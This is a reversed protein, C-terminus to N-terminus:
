LSAAEDLQAVEAAIETPDRDAVPVSAYERVATAIATPIPTDDVWIARTVGADRLGDAWQDFVSAPNHAFARERGDTAAEAILVAAFANLAAGGVHSGDSIDGVATKVGLSRLEDIVEVDTVFARVEGSRGALADTIAPGLTTDAGIIIVPM